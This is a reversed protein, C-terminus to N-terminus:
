HGSGARVGQRALPSVTLLPDASPSRPQRGCKARGPGCGPVCPRPVPLEGPSICPVLPPIGPVPRQEWRSRRESSPGGARGSGRGVQGAPCAVECQRPEPGLLLSRSLVPGRSLSQGGVGTPEHARPGSAPGRQHGSAGGRGLLTMAHAQSVSNTPFLSSRSLPSVSGPEPLAACSQRGGVGRGSGAGPGQARAGGGSELASVLRWRVRTM